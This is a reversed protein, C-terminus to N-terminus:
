LDLDFLSFQKSERNSGTTRLLDINPSPNGLEALPLQSHGDGTWQFQRDTILPRKVHRV